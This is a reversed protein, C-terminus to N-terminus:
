LLCSINKSFRFYNVKPISLVLSEPRSLLVKSSQHSLKLKLDAFFDDSWTILPLMISLDDICFTLGLIIMCEGEFSKKEHSLILFTNKRFLGNNSKTTADDSDAMLVVSDLNRVLQLKM